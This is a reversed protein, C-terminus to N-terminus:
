RKDALQVSTDLQSMALTFKKGAALRGGEACLQEALRATRLAKAAAKPEATEALTRVQETPNVSAPARSSASAAGAKAPRTAAHSLARVSPSRGAPSSRMLMGRATTGITTSGIM